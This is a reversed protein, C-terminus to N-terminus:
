EPMAACNLSAVNSPSDDFYGEAWVVGVQAISCPAWKTLSRQVKDESREVRTSRRRCHMVATQRSILYCLCWKVQPKHGRGCCSATRVTEV